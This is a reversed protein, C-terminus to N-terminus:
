TLCTCYSVFKGNKRLWDVAEEHNDWASDFAGFLKEFEKEKSKSLTYLEDRFRLASIAFYRKNM